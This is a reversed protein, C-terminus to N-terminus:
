CCPQIGAALLEERVKRILPRDSIRILNLEKGCGRCPPLQGILALRVGERPSPHPWNRHNCESCIVYFPKWIAM